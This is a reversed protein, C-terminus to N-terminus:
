TIESPKHSSQNQVQWDGGGSIAKKKMRKEAM